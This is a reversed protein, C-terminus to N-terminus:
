RFGGFKNGHFNNFGNGFHHHHSHFPFPQAPFHPKSQGFQFGPKAHGFHPGFGGGFQPKFFSKQQHQFGFQKHAFNGQHFGNNFGGANVQAVGFAFSISIALALTTIFKSM